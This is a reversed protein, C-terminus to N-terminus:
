RNVYRTALRHWDKADIHTFEDPDSSLHVLFDGAVRVALEHTKGSSWIVDLLRRTAPWFRSRGERVTPVRTLGLVDLVVEVRAETGFTAYISEIRIDRDLRDLASRVRLWNRLAGRDLRDAQLHYGAPYNGSPDTHVATDERRLDPDNSVMRATATVDALSGGDTYLHLTGGAVQATATTVVERARYLLTARDAASPVPGDDVTPSRVGSAPDADADGLILLFSREMDLTEYASEVQELAAAFEPEETDEAMEVTITGIFYDSDAEQVAVEADEVGDLDALCDALEDADDDDDDIDFDGIDCHDDASREGDRTPQTPQTSQTSPSCAAGAGLLLLALLALLIRM